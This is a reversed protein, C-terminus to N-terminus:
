LSTAARRFSFFSQSAQGIVRVSETIVVDAGFEFSFSNAGAFFRHSERGVGGTLATLIQDTVYLYPESVYSM